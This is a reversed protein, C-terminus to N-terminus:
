IYGAPIATNVLIQAYTWTKAGGALYAADMPISLRMIMRHRNDAAVWFPNAQAVRETYGVGEIAALTPNIAQLTVACWVALKELTDCSAPIQAPALATM